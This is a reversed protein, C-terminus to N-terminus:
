EKVEGAARDFFDALSHKPEPKAAKEAATEPECNYCRDRFRRPDPHPDPHPDNAPGDYFRLLFHNCGPTPCVGMIGIDSALGKRFRGGSTRHMIRKTPYRGSM